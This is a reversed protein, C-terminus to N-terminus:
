FLTDDKIKSPLPMRQVEPIYFGPSFAPTLRQRSRDNQLTITKYVKCTEFVQLTQFLFVPNECNSNEMNRYSPRLSVFAM